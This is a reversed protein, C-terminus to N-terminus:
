CCILLQFNLIRFLFISKFNVLIQNSGFTPTRRISSAPSGPRSRRPPSRRRRRRRSRWIRRCLGRCPQWIGWVIDILKNNIQCGQKIECALVVFRTHPPSHAVKPYSMHSASPLQTECLCVHLPVHRPHTPKFQPRPNVFDLKAYSSLPHKRRSRISQM